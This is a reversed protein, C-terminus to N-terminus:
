RVYYRNVFGNFNVATLMYWYILKGMSAWAFILNNGNSSLVLIMMFSLRLIPFKIDIYRNSTRM